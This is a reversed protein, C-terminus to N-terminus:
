LCKKHVRYVVDVEGYEDRIKGGNDYIPNYLERHTEVFGVNEYFRSLFGEFHDLYCGGLNIASIM